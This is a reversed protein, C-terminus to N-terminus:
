RCGLKCFRRTSKWDARELEIAGVYNVTIVGTKVNNGSHVPCNGCGKCGYLQLHGIKEKVVKDTVTEDKKLNRAFVCMKGEGLSCGKCIILQKNTYKANDDIQSENTVDNPQFDKLQTLSLSTLLHSLTSSVDV